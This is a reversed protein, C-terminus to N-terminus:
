KFTLQFLRDMLDQVDKEVGPDPKALKSVIEDRQALASVLGDKSLPTRALTSGGLDGSIQRLGLFWPSRWCSFCFESL